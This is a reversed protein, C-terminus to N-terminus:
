RDVSSIAITPPHRVTTNAETSTLMTCEIPIHLRLATHINRYTDDHAATHPVSRTHTYTHTHSMSRKKLCASRTDAATPACRGHCRAPTQSASHQLRAVRRAQRATDDCRQGGVSHQRQETHRSARHTATDGGRRDSMTVTTNATMCTNARPM